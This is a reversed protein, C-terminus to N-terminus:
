VYFLKGREKSISKLKNKDEISKFANSPIYFARDDYYLLIDDEIPVVGDIEDWLLFTDDQSIGRDKVTLKIKRNKLPSTEYAKLARQYILRKKIVYWYLLLITSLMLLGFSGNKLAAVVGFQSLAIFFWGIYRRSSNKFQHNYSNTFAKQFNERDWIYSLEIPKSINM